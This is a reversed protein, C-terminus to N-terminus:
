KIIVFTQQNLALLRGDASWLERFEATYGGSAAPASARHFLPADAPVDADLWELTFAVTAMPRPAELRSFAAPWWADACGVVYAAGRAAGPEKPRIWGESRAEAEGSFPFHREVRFEFNLAFEPGVPPQVPVVELAQWDRRAPPPLATWDGDAVRQKGFCCSATACAAGAQELRVLYNSQGSGVRLAEVSLLAPGPQVPAFIDATLSRLRRDGAGAVAQAANTMTALVLGGFLGRGQLWGEPFVHSFRGDGLLSPTSLADFTPM